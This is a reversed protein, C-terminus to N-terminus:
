TGPRRSIANQSTPFGLLTLTRDDATGLLGDVGRDVFTFPATYACPPREPQYQNTFLDDETKYVFGARVGMTETFQREVWASAEHSIPAKIDPNLRIAGQLTQATPAGSEM